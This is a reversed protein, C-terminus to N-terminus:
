RLYIAHWPYSLDALEWKVTGNKDSIVVRKADPECILYEDPSVQQVCTARSPVPISWTTQGKADLLAVFERGGVLINGDPLSQVSAAWQKLLISRILTGRSDFEKLAATGDAVLTNGNELRVAEQPFHLNSVSWFLNGAWDIEVVAKEPGDSVLMRENDLSKIDSILNFSIPNRSLLKGDGSIRAISNREGVLFEGNPLAAVSQAGKLEATRWLVKKSEREIMVLRGGHAILIRDGSPSSDQPHSIRNRLKASMNPISLFLLLLLTALAASKLHRNPM